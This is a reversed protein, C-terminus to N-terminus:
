NIKLLQKGTYERFGSVFPLLCSNILCTSPMLKLHYVKDNAKVPSFSVSVESKIASAKKFFSSLGKRVKNVEKEDIKSSFVPSGGHLELTM